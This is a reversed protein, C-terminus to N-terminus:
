GADRRNQHPIETSPYHYNTCANRTFAAHTVDGYSSTSRSPWTCNVASTSRSKETAFSVAALPTSTRQQPSFEQMSTSTKQSLNPFILASINSNQPSRYSDDERYIM